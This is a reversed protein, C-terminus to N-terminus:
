HPAGSGLWRGILEVATTMEGEIADWVDPGDRNDESLLFPSNPPMRNDRLRHKIRSMGWMKMSSTMGDSFLSMGTGDDLNYDAGRIMGTFSSLDMVHFSEEINAFHCEVCQTSGEFWM